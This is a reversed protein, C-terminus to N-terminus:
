NNQDYISIIKFNFLIVNFYNSNLFLHTLFIQLYNILFHFILKFYCLVNLFHSIINLILHFQDYYYINLNEILLFSYNIM